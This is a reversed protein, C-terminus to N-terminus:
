FMENPGIPKLIDSNFYLSKQSKSFHIFLSLSFNLPCEYFSM